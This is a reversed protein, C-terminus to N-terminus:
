AAPHAAPGDAPPTARRPRPKPAGTNPPPLLDSVPRAEGWTRLETLLYGTKRPSLLRPQPFTPDTRGLAEFNSLSLSLYAASHEKDLYLPELRVIPSTKHETM